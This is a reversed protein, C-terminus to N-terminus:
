SSHSNPKDCLIVGYTRWLHEPDSDSAGPPLPEPRPAAPKRYLAQVKDEAARRCAECYCEQHIRPPPPQPPLMALAQQRRRLDYRKLLENGAWGGGFTFTMAMLGLFADSNGGPFWWPARVFFVVFLFGAAAGGYVFWGPHKQKM